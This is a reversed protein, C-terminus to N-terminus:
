KVIERAYAYVYVQTYPHKFFCCVAAAGHINYGTGCLKSM